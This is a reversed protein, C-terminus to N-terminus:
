PTKEPEMGKVQFGRLLAKVQATSHSLALESVVSVPGVHPCYITSVRKGSQSDEDVVEACGSFSGAETEVRDVRRAVTTTTYPGSPWSRGVKVPALLIHGPSGVRLLGQPTSRYRLEEVGSRLVFDQGEARLVQVTTLVNDTGMDVMYSWANGTSLPYLSAISWDDGKPKVATGGTACGISLLALLWLGGRIRNRLYVMM